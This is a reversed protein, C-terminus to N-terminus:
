NAPPKANPTCSGELTLASPPLSPPSPTSSPLRRRRRGGGGGRLSPSSPPPRDPRPPPHTRSQLKEGPAFSRRRSCLPGGLRHPPPPGEPVRSEGPGSYTHASGRREGFGGWLAHRATWDRLRGVRQPVTETCGRLGTHLSVSRVTRGPPWPASWGRPQAAPRARAGAALGSDGAPVGAATAASPCPSGRLPDPTASSPPPPFSRRLSVLSVRNGGSGTGSLGPRGGGGRKEQPPPPPRPVPIPGARGSPQRPPPRAQPRRRAPATAAPAAPRARLAHPRPGRGGRCNGLTALLNCREGGGGRPGEPPSRGPTSHSRTHTRTHARRPAAEARGWSPGAQEGRGPPGKAHGRQRGEEEEEEM